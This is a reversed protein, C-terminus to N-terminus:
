IKEEEEVLILKVTSNDPFLHEKIDATLYIISHNTEATQKYYRTNSISDFTTWVPGLQFIM